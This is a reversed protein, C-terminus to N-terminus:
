HPQTGGNAVGVISRPTVTCNARHECAAESNHLAWAPRQIRQVIGHRRCGQSANKRTWVPGEGLVSQPTNRPIATGRKPFVKASGQSPLNRATRQSMAPRPRKMATTEGRDHAPERCRLAYQGRRVLTWHLRCDWPRQPAARAEGPHYGPRREQVPRHDPPLGLGPVSIFESRNRPRLATQM